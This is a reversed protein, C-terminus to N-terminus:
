AALHGMLDFVVDGNSFGLCTLPAYSTCGTGFGDGPNEWEAPNGAIASQLAGYWQGHFTFDMDAAVGVWYTGSPLTVAPFKISLAGSADTVNHSSRIAIFADPSGGGDTYFVVTAQTVPGGTEFGAVDLQQVKWTQGGTVTFDDALEADFTSYYIEFDQAPISGSPTGYQSYLLRLAAPRARAVSAHGHAALSPRKATKTATSNAGAAIGSWAALALASTVAITLALYRNRM